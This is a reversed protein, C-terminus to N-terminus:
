VGHDHSELTRLASKSKLLYVNETHVFSSSKFSLTLPVWSVLMCHLSKMSSNELKCMHGQSHTILAIKESHFSSLFHLRLSVCSPHLSSFWQLTVCSLLFALCCWIITRVHCDCSVSPPGDSDRLTLLPRNYNM